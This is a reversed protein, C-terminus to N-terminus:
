PLKWLDMNTHTTYCISPTHIYKPDTFDKMFLNQSRFKQLQCQTSGASPIIFHLITRYNGTLLTKQMMWVIFWSESHM